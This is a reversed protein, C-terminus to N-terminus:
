VFLFDEVVSTSASFFIERRVPDHTLPFISESFTALFLLIIDTLICFLRSSLTFDFKPEAAFLFLKLFSLLNELSWWFSLTQLVFYM